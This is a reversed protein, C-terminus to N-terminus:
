GILADPRHGNLQVAAHRRRAEALWEDAKRKGLEGPFLAMVEATTLRRPPNERAASLWVGIVHSEAAPGALVRGDVTLTTVSPRRRSEPAPPEKVPTPEPAPVVVPEVPQPPMVPHTEPTPPPPTPEPEVPDKVGVPLIRAARSLREEVEALDTDDALTALRAMRIRRRLVASSWSTGYRENFSLRTLRDRLHDRNVTAVDRDGAELMGIAIGINRPKWRFTTPVEEAPDDDATLDIYWSWAVLLPIAIRMPAQSWGEGFAVVVGMICAIGWVYTVHKRRRLRDHRLRHAAVMRAGMMVEFVLFLVSAVVPAADLESLAVDLMGQASWGLGLATGLVTLRRDPRASRKAALLFALLLAPVAWYFIREAPLADLWRWVVRAGDAIEDLSM